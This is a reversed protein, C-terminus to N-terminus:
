VRTFGGAEEKLDKSVQKNEAMEDQVVGISQALSDISETASVVGKASEEVADNIGKISSNMENTDTKISDISKECSVMDEDIHTADDSYKQGMDVFNDYDKLITKNIYEVIDQSAGALEKVSSVVSKNINQINNATERSSDALQRIEDAVVAFGRGAEGARAAEISANLALLNTQSSISLIEDTLKDVQEVSKANEVAVNLGETFEEIIAATQKKNEQASVKIEDARKKMDKAYGSLESTKKAFGSVKETVRETNESVSHTTASVEEMTASLEEMIASVDSINEHSVSVNSAVSDVVRDLTDSSTIIHSMINQLTEIFRNIGYAVAGIEDNSTVSIRKTLDGHGSEIDAIIENIAKSQRQLPKVVLGVCVSMAIFFSVVQGLIFFMSKTCSSKYIDSQESVYSAMLENNESSLVDIKDSVSVSISSLSENVAAFMTASDSTSTAASAALASVRSQATDIEAILEDVVVQGDQSFSEKNMLLQDTCEAMEEKVAQLDSLLYQQTATDNGAACYGLVDKMVRQVDAQLNDLAYMNVVGINTVNESAENVKQLSSIPYLGASIGCYGMVILPIAIKFIVKTSAGKKNPDFKIDKKRKM